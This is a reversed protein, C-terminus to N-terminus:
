EYYSFNCVLYTTIERIIESMNLIDYHLKKVQKCIPEIQKVTEDSIKESEDVKNNSTIYLSYEDRMYQNKISLKEIMPIGYTFYQSIDNDSKTSDFSISRYKYVLKLLIGFKKHFTQMETLYNCAKEYDSVM